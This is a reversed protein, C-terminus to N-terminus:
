ASIFGVTEASAVLAQLGTPLSSVNRAVTYSKLNERRHSHLNTDEPIHRRTASTLVSPESSHLAVKMLTLLIPSSPVVSATDLTTGLEAITVRIFFARCEESGDTRVLAVRRLMGSSVM